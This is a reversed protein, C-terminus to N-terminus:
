EYYFRENNLESNGSLSLIIDIDEEVSAYKKNLVTIVNNDSLERAKYLSWISALFQCSLDEGDEFIQRLPIKRDGAVIFEVSKKHRRFNEVKLCDNSFGDYLTEKIDEFSKEFYVRDPCLGLYGYYNFIFRAVEIKDEKTLSYDKDDILVTKLCGDEPILGKALKINEILDREDITKNIITEYYIHGYEIVLIM